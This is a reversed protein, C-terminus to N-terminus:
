VLKMFRIESIICTLRAPTGLEYEYDYLRRAGRYGYGRRKKEEHLGGEEGGGWSGGRLGIRFRM